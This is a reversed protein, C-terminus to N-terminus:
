REMIVVTGVQMLDGWAQALGRRVPKKVQRKGAEGRLQWFVEAIKMMGAAAIPNGVGLLGGSPNIPLDGDRQTVGERTLKPAEGRRALQLGEMHHLEKYDFPDYVEAFDIEKKPDSIHAMRYAMNAAKELYEPYCLDRNTWYTSDVNWGVGTIWVPDDTIRRAVDESALVVAAAGDSTPSVDLRKVPWCIPESKLVDDVTINAALQAAPHDLANRKNKVAVLAIDEESVNYVHMYRRMELSFIWLLTVGLPRELIPDFISWFAYQPHPLLPSMKEEGVVLVIDAVGSAVQWWAAIPVFVGTGGGVFVRTYPKRTGGAGDLLYEGKMHVGDFADPASGLVVSDVDKIDLGAQDLAMRSAEFAMEKGTELMRHRFLTMGAGVVAVRRM